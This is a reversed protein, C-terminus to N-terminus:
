NSRVSSHLAIASSFVGDEYAAYHATLYGGASFGATTTRSALVRVGTLVSLPPQCIAAGASISHLSMDFQARRMRCGHWPQGKKNLFWYFYCRAVHLVDKSIPEGVIPIRRDEPEVVDASGGCIRAEKCPEAHM